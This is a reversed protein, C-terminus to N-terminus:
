DESYGCFPCCVMNEVYHEGAPGSPVSIPKECNPCTIYAM